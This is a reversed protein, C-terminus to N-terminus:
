ESAFQCGHVADKTSAIHGPFADVRLRPELRKELTDKIELEKLSLMWAPM